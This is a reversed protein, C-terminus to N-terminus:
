GNVGILVHLGQSKSCRSVGWMCAAPWPATVIYLLSLLRACADSTRTQALISHALQWYVVRPSSNAHAHLAFLM